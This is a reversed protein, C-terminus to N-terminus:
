LYPGLPVSYTLFLEDEGPNQENVGANSIHAGRVGLRHGNDFRWALDISQRFQFVGGLDQGGGEGYGGIALQPTVYYTFTAGNGMSQTYAPCEGSAQPAVPQDTLCDGPAPRMADLRYNAM